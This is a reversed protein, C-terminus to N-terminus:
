SVLRRVRGLGDNAEVPRATIRSPQADLTLDDPVRRSAQQEPCFGLRLPGAILLMPDQPQPHILFRRFHGRLYNSRLHTLTEALRNAHRRCVARSFVLLRRHQSSPEKLFVSVTRPPGHSLGDHTRSILLRGEAKLLTRLLQRLGQRSQDHSPLCRRRRVRSRARLIHRFQRIQGGLKMCQCHAVRDLQGAHGPRVVVVQCRHRCEGQTERLFRRCQRQQIIQGLPGTWSHTGPSHIRQTYSGVRLGVGPQQSPKQDVLVLGHPGPGALRHRGAEPSVM